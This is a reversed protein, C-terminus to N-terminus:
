RLLIMKKTEVFEGAKLQYFYIGSALQKSGISSQFEAEYSGATKYEDVLTAVENGLIDYVKLTAYQPSSIAYKINTSPNFPNPYNQALAFNYSKKVNDTINTTSDVYVLSFYGTDPCTSYHPILGKDKAQIKYKFVYQSKLLELDLYFNLTCIQGLNASVPPIYYISDGKEYLGLLNVSEIYNLSGGPAGGIIWRSYYHYVSFNTKFNNSSIQTIPTFYIVPYYGHDYTLISDNLKFQAQIPTSDFYGFNLAWYGAESIQYNYYNFGKVYWSRGLFTSNSEVVTVLRHNYITSGPNFQIFTNGNSLNFDMYLGEAFKNSDANFGYAFLKQEVTDYRFTRSHRYYRLGNIITDSNIVINKLWWYTSGQFNTSGFLQWKNGIELPFWNQATLLNASFILAFLIKKM